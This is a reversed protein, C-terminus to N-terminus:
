GASPTESAPHTRHADRRAALEDGVQAKARRNATDVMEAAIDRLKRNSEQSVRRLHAFAADNSIGYRNMLIGIATSVTRSTALAAQLHEITAGELAHSAPRDARATRL